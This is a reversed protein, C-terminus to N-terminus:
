VGMAKYLQVLDDVMDGCNDAKHNGWFNTTVNKFSKWAAKEM